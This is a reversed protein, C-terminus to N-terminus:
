DAIFNSFVNFIICDSVVVQLRTEILEQSTVLTSFSRQVFLLCLWSGDMNIVTSISAEQPCKRQIYSAGHEEYRCLFVFNLNLIHYHHLVYCRIFISNTTKSQSPSGCRNSLVLLHQYVEEQGFVTSNASVGCTLNLNIDGFKGYSIM